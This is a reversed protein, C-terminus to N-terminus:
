LGPAARPGRRRRWSEGRTLIPFAAQLVPVGVVAREHPVGEVADAVDAGGGRLVLHEAERRDEQEQAGDM